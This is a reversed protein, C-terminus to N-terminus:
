EPTSYNHFLSKFFIHTLYLDVIGGIEDMNNSMDSVSKATGDVTEMIEGMGKGALEARKVGDHAFDSSQNTLGSIATTRGAVESVAGALDTM